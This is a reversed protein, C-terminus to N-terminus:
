GHQVCLQVNYLCNDVTAQTEYLIINGLDDGKKRKLRTAFRRENATGAFQYGCSPQRELLGSRIRFAPLGISKQKPQEM